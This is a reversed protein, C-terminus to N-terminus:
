RVRETAPVPLEVTGYKKVRSYTVTGQGVRVGMMCAPIQDGVHFVRRAQNFSHIPQTPHIFLSIDTNIIKIWRKKKKEERKKRKWKTRFTCPEHLELM